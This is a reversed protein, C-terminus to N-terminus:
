RRNYPGRFLPVINLVSPLYIASSDLHREQGRVSSLASVEDRGMLM